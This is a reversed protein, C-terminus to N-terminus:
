TGYIRSSQATFWRTQQKIYRKLSSPFSFHTHTYHLSSGYSRSSWHKIFAKGINEQYPRIQIITKHRICAVFLSFKIASLKVSLIQTSTPHKM